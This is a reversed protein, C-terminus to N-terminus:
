GPVFNTYKFPVHNRLSDLLAIQNFFQVGPNFRLNIRHDKWPSYNIGASGRIEYTENNFENGAFTEKSQSGNYVLRGTASYGLKPNNKGTTANIAYNQNFSTYDTSLRPAELLEYDNVNKRRAINENDNSSINASASLDYYKGKQLPQRFHINTRM